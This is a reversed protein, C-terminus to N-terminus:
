TRGQIDEDPAVSKQNVGETQCTKMKNKEPGGGKGAQRGKGLFNGTVPEVAYAAAEKEQGERKKM